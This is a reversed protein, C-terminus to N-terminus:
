EQNWLAFEALRRAKLGALEVEAGYIVGHDWLLLQQGALDYQGANLERLLTSGALRFVGMNFTFDVLADFQGQKLPVRVLRQVAGAANNVDAVLLNQAQDQDIGNVFSDPHLLRHGYGITPLGGVDLYVHGRFGESRKLLDFGAESFQM